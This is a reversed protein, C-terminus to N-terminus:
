SPLEPASQEFPGAFLGITKLGSFEPLHFNMLVQAGQLLNAVVVVRRKANNLKEVAAELNPDGKGASALVRDLDAELSVIHDRLEDQAARTESVRIDLSELTPRIM